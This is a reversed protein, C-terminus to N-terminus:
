TRHYLWTCLNGIQCVGVRDFPLHFPGIPCPSSTLPLPYTYHSSFPITRKSRFIFAPTTIAPVCSHLCSSLHIVLPVDHLLSTVLVAMVAAVHLMLVKRHLIPTHSLYTYPHLVPSILIPIYSLICPPSSLLSLNLPTYIIYSTFTFTFPTYLTNWPSLGFMHSQCTMDNRCAICRFLVVTNYSSSICSSPIFHAYPIFPRHYTTPLLPKYAFWFVVVFLFPFM